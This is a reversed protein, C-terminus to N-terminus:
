KDSSRSGRMMAATPKTPTIPNKWIESAIPSVMPSDATTDRWIPAPATACARRMAAELRSAIRTAVNTSPTPVTASSPGIRSRSPATPGVRASVTRNRTMTEGDSGSTAPPMHQLASSREAPSARRASLTVSNAAMTAANRSGSSIKARCRPKSPAAMLVTSDRATISAVPQAPADRRCSM